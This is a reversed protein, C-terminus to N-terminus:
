LIMRLPLLRAPRKPKDYVDEIADLKMKALRGQSRRKVSKTIVINIFGKREEKAKYQNETLKLATKKSILILKGQKSGGPHKFQCGLVEVTSNKTHNKGKVM